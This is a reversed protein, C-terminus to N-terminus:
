AAATKLVAAAEISLYDFDLEEIFRTALLDNLFYAHESTDIRPAGRTGFLWFKLKGFVALPTAAAANTTCPQLVEVWRIPFGDLTAVGDPRYDFCKDELTNFNRLKAEWSQNMYYKGGALAATNVEARLNRFDELDADSPATQGAGLTVLKSNDAAIKCIGEAGEYTNTGDALFAATDEARAFEVAGYQALFQGMLGLSQEDIERPMLVIGGVKKSTLDCFTMTPKKEDLAAAMAVFSFAPRTGWRPPRNQGGSMPYMMLEQRAVGFEAILEMLQGGYSVPLPVESTSMARTVGAFARAETFLVDRMHIDTIMADLKGSKAAHLIVASALGRACEDSVGGRPRAFGSGSRALLQRQMQKFETELRELLTSKEKFDKSQDRLSKMIQEFEKVQEPALATNYLALCQKSMAIELLQFVGLLAIATVWLGLM